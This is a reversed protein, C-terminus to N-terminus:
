LWYNAGFQLAAVGIFVVVIKNLGGLNDKRIYGDIAHQILWPMAVVTATYVLVAAITLLILRWHPRLYVVLRMVVRHDYMQGGEDEQDLGM